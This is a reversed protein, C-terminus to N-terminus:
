LSRTEIGAALAPEAEVEGADEGEVDEGKGGVALLELVELYGGKIM